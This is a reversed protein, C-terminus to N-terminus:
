SKSSGRPKEREFDIFNLDGTVMLSEDEYGRKVYKTRIGPLVTRFGFEEKWVRTTKV